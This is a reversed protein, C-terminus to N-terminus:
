AVGILTQLQQNAIALEDYTLNDIKILEFGDTLMILVLDEGTRKKDMKMASYLADTYFQNKNPATVLAPHLAQRHLQDFLTPHMLGRNKAVINAFMMGILVAQGHPIAFASTSEVAHGFCHGFNLLNRKGMDFEDDQMYSLKVALSKEIALLLSATNERGTLASLNSMLEDALQEGSMLHLKIVEGLGSFYDENKLTKTFVPSLFIQNPPFFSGVLNKNSKYNLSTKSGICSDAQALLTTPVFIWNIGRYLTSAAFGTIDQVIGGGVSIMTMNRKASRLMLADYVEMVTYLNKREEEIPLVMVLQPDLSSFLSSSYLEWVNSDIVYFRNPIEEFAAFFDFSDYFKVEYDRIASHVKIVQM